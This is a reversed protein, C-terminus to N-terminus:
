RMRYVLREDLGLTRMAPRIEEYFRRGDEYYGATPRVQPVHLLWFRNFLDMLLERLYKSLMSALAVPLQRDEADVLFSLEAWREADQVQYSSFTDSEEIVRFKCGEFVLQLAQLYRMRGGQRDVYVRVRRGPVKRWLDVLLRSTVGFLMTSKNDTAEVIRNFEGPLVVEARMCLPRVGSRSLASSLANASLDVDTRSICHPLPLDDRAYWPYHPMEKLSGSAHWSMLQRLSAPRSGMAALMALVGRELHELANGRQRSYLRKSDGIAVSLRRRSPTKGVAGSLLRWMSEGALEDPVEFATASVVLPGLVPGLGAEDIGAIVTLLHEKEDRGPGARCSARGVPAGRPPAGASSSGKEIGAIIDPAVCRPSQFPGGSDSGQPAGVSPHMLTKTSARHAGKNPGVGLPWGIGM